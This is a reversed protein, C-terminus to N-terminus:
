LTTLNFIFMRESALAQHAGKFVAELDRLSDLENLVNLALIMDYEDALEMRRIDQQRLGAEVNAASLRTRAVNIMEPSSDIGTTIYGHKGLWELAAGTGSGLDLIRRGMWESRQAFDLLRPTANTASASMGLTDYINALIAYDSPM